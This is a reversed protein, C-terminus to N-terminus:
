FATIFQFIIDITMLVDIIMEQTMEAEKQEIRNQKKSVTESLVFCIHIPYIIYGYFLVILIMGRWLGYWSSKAPQIIISLCPVGNRDVKDNQTESLTGRDHGDSDEHDVGNMNEDAKLEKNDLEVVLWNAQHKM